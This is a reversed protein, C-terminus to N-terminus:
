VHIHKYFKVGTGYIEELGEPTIVERPRGYCPKEKNM